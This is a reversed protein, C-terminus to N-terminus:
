EYPDSGVEGFDTSIILEFDKMKRAGLHGQTFTLFKALFLKIDLTLTRALCSSCLSPFDDSVVFIWMKRVHIYVLAITFCLVYLVCM